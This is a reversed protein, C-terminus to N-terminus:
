DIMDSSTFYGMPNTNSHDIVKLMKWTRSRRDYQYWGDAEFEVAGHLSQRTATKPEPKTIPSVDAVVPLTEVKREATKRSRSVKPETSVVTDTKPNFIKMARRLGALDRRLQALDYVNSKEVEELMKKDVGTSNVLEARAKGYDSKTDKAYIALSAPSEFSVGAEYLKEAIEPHLMYFKTMFILKDKVIEVLENSNLNYNDKMVNFNRGLNEQMVSVTEWNLDSWSKWHNLPRANEWMGDSIQGQAMFVFAIKQAVNEVNLIKTDM